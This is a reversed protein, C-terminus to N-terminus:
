YINSQVVSPFFKDIIAKLSNGVDRILPFFLVGLYLLKYVGLIIPSQLRVM